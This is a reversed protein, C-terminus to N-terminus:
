IDWNPLKRNILESLKLNHPKYFKILMSKIEPNMTNYKKKTKNIERLFNMFKYAKQNPFLFYVIRRLLSNRQTMKSISKAFLISKIRQTTNYKVKVNPEFQDDVGLKKFAMKCVLLPDNVLDDFLIISVQNKPFIKFINEIHKYYIGYNLFIEYEWRKNDKLINKFEDFEFNVSGLNKEMLFSSYAREVPNRLIIIIQCKPNHDFLLKLSDECTYLGASKAVFLRSDSPLQNFYYKEFVSNYNELRESCDLFYSFEIQLHSVCSPHEGIYRLLSTTASKQAGVIMVDIPKNM